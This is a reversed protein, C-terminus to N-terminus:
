FSALAVYIALHYSRDLTFIALVKSCAALVFAWLLHYGSTVNLGDFTSGHGTAINYAIKAYFFGDDEISIVPAARMAPLLLGALLLSALAAPGLSTASVEGSPSSERNLRM